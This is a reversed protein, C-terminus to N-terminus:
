SIAHWGSVGNLIKSWSGVFRVMLSFDRRLRSIKQTIKCSFVWFGGKFVIKEKFKARKEIVDTIKIM